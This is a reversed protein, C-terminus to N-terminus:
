SRYSSMVLLDAEFGQGAWFEREAPEDAAVQTRLTSVGMERLRAIVAAALRARVEPAGPAYVEQVEGRADPLLGDGTDVRGLGFGAVEGGVVAVLCFATRHWATVALMRSLHGRGAETLPGGDPTEACMRDWLEVVTEAEAERIRRIEVDDM